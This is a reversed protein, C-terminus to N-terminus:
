GGIFFSAAFGGVIAATALNRPPSSIWHMQTFTKYTELPPKISSPLRSIVGMLVSALWYPSESAIAM